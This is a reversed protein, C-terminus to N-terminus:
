MLIEPVRIVKWKHVEIVSVNLQTFSNIYLRYINNRVIAHKMPLGDDASDDPDAHRIYYTYTKYYYEYTGDAKRQGYYGSLLIGTAYTSLPSQPLLTNEATYALTYYSYTGDTNGTEVSRVAHSQAVDASALSAYPITYSLGEPLGSAQTKAATWPDVVYNTALGTNADATEEGLYTCSKSDSPSRSVRRLLYEGSDLLNFPTVHTLYFVDGSPQGAMSGAASQVDYKYYAGLTVTTSADGNLVLTLPTTQLGDEGSTKGPSFDIRAALRSVEAEFRAPASETYAGTLFLEVDNSSTMVFRSATSPDAASTLAYLTTTTAQRLEGLTRGQWATQNGMNALVVMHWTGREFKEDTQQVKTTYTIRGNADTSKMLESCYLAHEIVTADASGIGEAGRYFLLTVDTVESERTWGTERGDGDEGAAPGRSDHPLSTTVTLEYTLGDHVAPSAPDANEGACAAFALVALCHQCLMLLHSFKLLHMTYIRGHLWPM